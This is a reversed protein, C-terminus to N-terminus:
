MAGYPMAPEKGILRSYVTLAGRHHATHDSIASIIVLRPVAGMISDAPLLAQWEADSNNGTVELANGIAQKFRDRADTLSQCAMAERIHKEFNLDFGDASFAGEMFWDITQAAHAVHGAVTYMGEGPAFGSDEESLCDTSNTFFKSITELQAILGEKVM